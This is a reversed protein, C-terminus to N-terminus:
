SYKEKGANLERELEISKPFLINNELHIHSHLDEQFENLLAFAVRYTNCGDAPPKYNDSLAAIQRFREGEIDHEGMMMVIPNQVTGFHPQHLEECTLKSEVMERIFPFLVLEEKKMHATLEGSSAKFHDTIEFLENHQKGHVQCLRDLYQNIVPIQAEVYRHHKKEIYDALLDLSWSRFDPLESSTKQQVEDIETMLMGPDVNTADCADKISRNGRCCFDINHNKFVQATRYNDAVIEGITKNQITKM